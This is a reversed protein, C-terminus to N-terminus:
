RDSTAKKANLADGMETDIEEELHAICGVETGNREKKEIIGLDVMEDDTKEHLGSLPLLPVSSNQRNSVRPYQADSKRNSKPRGSHREPYVCASSVFQYKLM